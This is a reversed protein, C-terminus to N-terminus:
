ITEYQLLVRGNGSLVTSEIFRVAAHWFFLYRFGGYVGGARHRKGTCCDGPSCIRQYLGLKGSKRFGITSLLSREANWYINEPKIDRHLIGNEHSVKIAQGIQGAFQLIGTHYCLEERSVCMEGKENKGLIGEQREMLICWLGNWAIADVVPVVYPSLRSLRQWSCVGERFSTEQGDILDMVKMALQRSSEKPDTMEYVFSFGGSGLLHLRNEKRVFQYHSFLGGEANGKQLLTELAERGTNM